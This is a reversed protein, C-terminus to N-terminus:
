YKLQFFDIIKHNEHIKEFNLLFKHCVKLQYHILNFCIAHFILFPFFIHSILFNLLNKLCVIFFLIFNTINRFNLTHFEEDALSM